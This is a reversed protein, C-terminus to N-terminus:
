ISCYLLCNRNVAPKLERTLPASSSSVSLCEEKDEEEEEDWGRM